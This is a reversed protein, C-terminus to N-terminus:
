EIKLGTQLFAKVKLELSLQFMINLCETSIEELDQNLQVVSYICVYM